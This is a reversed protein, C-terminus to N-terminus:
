DRIAIVVTADEDARREVSPTLGGAAFIEATVPAQRESTEIFLRGGPALWSRADIAIRRHLELGDAGGDLAARAEYERAERPMLDVEDTPVYPANVLLVDIRGRLAPPLALWLDGVYCRGAWAATNRRACDVAVEGVDTAHLDVGPVRAVLAAGVAGSGCCLDLVVAPDTGVQDAALDVLFATRRRPVFVGPAVAIRLGCFEAWGLIYELPEGKSRREVM